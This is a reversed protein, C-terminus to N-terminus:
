NRTRNPVGTREHMRASKRRASRQVQTGYERQWALFNLTALVVMHMPPVQLGQAIRVATEVRHLMPKTDLPMAREMRRVHSHSFGARDAVPGLQMGKAERIRHLQLGFPSPGESYIRRIEVCVPCDDLTFISDTLEGM